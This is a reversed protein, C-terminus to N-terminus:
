RRELLVFDYSPGDAAAPGAERWVEIWASRDFNPFFTDAEPAVDVETLYLRRARPLIQRYLESGGIVSIENDTLAAARVVAADLDTFVEAGEAAYAADRTVILNRRGPLPKRPLSEWTKRGVLVPRGMTVRKFFALDGPLRWPLGGEIGIAGNRAVAAVLTLIPDAMM